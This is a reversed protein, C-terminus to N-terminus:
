KGSSDKKRFNDLVLVKNEKPEKNKTNVKITSTKKNQVIKNPQKNTEVEESNFQLAFKTSPDVISSLATFPIKLTEKIGDFSLKVTFYEDHVELKEFQHQLIITMEPFYKAKIRNPIEVDKNSTLFTILFYHEGKLGELQILTLIQKAIDRMANDVLKSYNIHGTENFM